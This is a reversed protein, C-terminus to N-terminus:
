LTLKISSKLMELSFQVLTICKNWVSLTNFICDAVRTQSLNNLNKSLLWDFWMGGKWAGSPYMSVHGSDRKPHHVSDRGNDSNVMCESTSGERNFIFSDWIPSVNGGQCALYRVYINTWQHHAVEPGSESMILFVVYFSNLIDAALCFNNM